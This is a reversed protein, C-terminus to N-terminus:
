RIVKIWDGIRPEGTPYFGNLLRLQAEANPIRMGAALSAMTAGRPVQIYHIYRGADAQGEKPHIPRFSEIMALLTGDGASFNQAEGEFLYNLGNYDIVALRKSATAGHAIATYGKLGAQDLESGKELTGTASSESELM